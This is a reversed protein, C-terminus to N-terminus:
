KIKARMKIIHARYFSLTSMYLYYILKFPQQNNRNINIHLTTIFFFM